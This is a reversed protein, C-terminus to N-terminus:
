FPSSPRPLLNLLGGRRQTEQEAGSLQRALDRFDRGLYKSTLLTKGANISEKCL